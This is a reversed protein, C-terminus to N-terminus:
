TMIEIFSKFVDGNNNKRIFLEQFSNITVPNKIKM